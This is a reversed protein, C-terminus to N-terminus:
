IYITTPPVKFVKFVQKPNEAHRRYKTIRITGGAELVM